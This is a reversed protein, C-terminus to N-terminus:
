RFGGAQINWLNAYTGKKRLLERHTGSATVDGGEIVLIRDMEMITSLRHAIVIVTKDRMLEHLADQILAESESDLSSTAEDLVLIPADKLIARAIAVRQREGGSLKVGREGVYTGYGNPLSRIFEDCHAKQAARVVDDDTADRRGYRINEMLTRHFLVPEQPVLSIHERLSDQTVGAIDQGDILIAGRRVDYFRFLLKVITSKGAGSPGVLAVKERPRISLSLRDLTLHRNFGFSVSKFDIKGRRVSLTRASKRDSVAHPTQLIEVMEKGDAMSDFVHRFSRGVEWLKNFVLFLYSQIFALDGLTLTGDMWLFIGVTMLVTEVAIMLASQAAFIVEHRDWSRTNARAYRGVAEGLRESEYRASPFLKITVANSIADALAGGAESDLRAREVDLVVAWKAAWLNFALYLVTWGVFIAALLPYRMSLGVVGCVLVVTVPVFRFTVEDALREFARSLRGIRRVLSGSFNDSFFQHSHGIVYDFASLELDRMVAPQFRNNILSVSRWGTWAALKIAVLLVIPSLFTDVAAANPAQAELLDFLRKLVWPPATELATTVAVLFLILFVKVKYRGAHRWFVRLVDQAEAEKM